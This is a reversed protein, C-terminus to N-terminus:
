GKTKTYKEASQWEYIALTAVIIIELIIYGWGMTTILQHHYFALGISLCCYLLNIIAIGKLLEGLKREIKFYCYFDYLAFFCPLAALFYLTIRPIGFFKEFHVLVIGLLFASLMAGLGDLLFLNKIKRYKIDNM